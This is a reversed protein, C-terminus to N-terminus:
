RMFATLRDAIYQPEEFALFHGGSPAAEYFGSTAPPANPSRVRSSPCTGSAARPSPSRSPSRPGSGNLPADLDHQLSTDFSGTVWYLTLLTCLADRDFRSELDGGNDSWAWLKDIIFAAMGAPSDMMAAAVTDPRSALIADYGGDQEGRM